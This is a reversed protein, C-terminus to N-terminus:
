EDAKYSTPQIKTFEIGKLSFCIKNEGIHAKRSCKIGNPISGLWNKQSSWKMWCLTDM